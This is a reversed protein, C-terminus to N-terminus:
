LPVLGKGDWRVWIAGSRDPRGGYLFVSGTWHRGKYRYRSLM